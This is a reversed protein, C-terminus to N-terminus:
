GSQAPAAGIQELLHLRDYQDWAEVLIGNEVRFVETIPLAMSKGSAPIGLFDGTHTGKVNWRLAVNDGESIAEDVSASLDPFATLFAEWLGRIGDRGRLEQGGPGHYIYDLDYLKFAEDLKRDNILEMVQNIVAVNKELSM